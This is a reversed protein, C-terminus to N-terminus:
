KGPKKAKAAMAELAKVAGAGRLLTAKTSAITRMLEARTMKKGAGILGEFADGGTSPQGRVLDLSESILKLRIIDEPGPDGIDHWDPWRRILEVLRDFIDRPVHPWPPAVYGAMILGGSGMPADFDPSTSAAIGTVGSGPTAIDDDNESFFGTDIGGYIIQTWSSFNLVLDGTSRQVHDKAHITAAGWQTRLLHDNGTWPWAAPTGGPANVFKSAPPADIPTPNIPGLGVWHADTTVTPDGPGPPGVGARGYWAVANWESWNAPRNFTWRVKRYSTMRRGTDWYLFGRTVDDQDTLSAPATQEVSTGPAVVTVDLSGFSPLDDGERYRKGKTTFHAM